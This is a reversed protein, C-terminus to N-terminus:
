RKDHKLYQWMGQAQSHTILKNRIWDEMTAPATHFRNWWMNEEDNKDDELDKYKGPHEKNWRENEEYLKAELLTFHKLKALPRLGLYFPTRSFDTTGDPELIWRDMSCWIDLTVLSKFIDQLQIMLDHPDQESRFRKFNITLARVKAACRAHRHMFGWLEDTSNIRIHKKRWYEDLFEDQIQRNLMCIPNQYPAFPRGDEYWGDENRKGAIFSSGEFLSSRRPLTTESECFSAGKFQYHVVNRESHFFYKYINHRVELPLSM